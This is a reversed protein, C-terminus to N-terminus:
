CEIKVDRKEKGVKPRLMRGNPVLIKGFSQLEAFVSITLSSMNQITPLFSRSALVSPNLKVNPILIKINTNKCYFYITFHLYEKQCDEPQEYSTTDWLECWTRENKLQIIVHQMLAAEM